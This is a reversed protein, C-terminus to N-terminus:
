LKVVEHLARRVVESGSTEVEGHLSSAIRSASEAIGVPLGKSPGFGRWMSAYVADAPSDM